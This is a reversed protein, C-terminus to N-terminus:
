MEGYEIWINRQNLGVNLFEHAKRYDFMVISFYQFDGFCWRYINSIGLVDDIFTIFPLNELWGHKVKPAKAEDSGPMSKPSADVAKSAPCSLRFSNQFPFWPDITPNYINFKLSIHYYKYSVTPLCFGSVMPKGASKGPEGVFRARSPRKGWSPGLNLQASKTTLHCKQPGWKPWDSMKPAWKVHNSWIKKPSNHCMGIKNGDSAPHLKPWVAKELSWTGPFCGNFWHAAPVLLDRLHHRGESGLRQSLWLSVPFWRLADKINVDGLDTGGLLPHLKSSPFEHM